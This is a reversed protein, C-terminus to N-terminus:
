TRSRSSSGKKRGAERPNDRIYKRIRNLDAENRIIREYYNRLFIKRGEIGDIKNIERTIESKFMGVIWGLKRKNEKKLKLIMHVHDPMIQFEDLVVHLHDTLSKWVSEVIKGYENLVIIPSDLKAGVNIPAVQVPVAKQVPAAQRARGMRGLSVGKEKVCITIFFYYGVKSYDFGKLRIPRRHGYITIIIVYFNHVSPDQRGAM